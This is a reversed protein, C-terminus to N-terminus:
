CISIIVRIIIKIAPKCKFPMYKGRSNERQTLDIFGILFTRRGRLNRGRREKEDGSTGKKDVWWWLNKLAAEM